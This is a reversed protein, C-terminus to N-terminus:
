AKCLMGMDGPYLVIPVAARKLLYDYINRITNIEDNM